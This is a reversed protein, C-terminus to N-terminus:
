SKNRKGLLGCLEIIAVVAEYVEKTVRQFAEVLTMIYIL